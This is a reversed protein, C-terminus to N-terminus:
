MTLNRVVIERKKVDECKIKQHSTAIHCIYEKDLFIETVFFTESDFCTKGDEIEFSKLPISLGKGNAKLIAEKQTWHELFATERNISNLVKNQESLTMHNKFDEIKIPHYKEIDIGLSARQNAVIVGVLEGSHSTNFQVDSGELYPKDFQTLRLNRLDVEENLYELGKKLLLRGLLSLQADQWRKYKQLKEQYEISFSCSFNKM